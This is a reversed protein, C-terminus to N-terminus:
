QAEGSTAPPNDGMEFVLVSMEVFPKALVRHQRDGLHHAQTTLSRSM